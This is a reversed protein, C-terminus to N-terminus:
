APITCVGVNEYGPPAADNDYFSVCEQEPAGACVVDPAGLDCYETCCGDTKCGPVSQGAVCLLGQDCVNVYACPDGYSGQDSSADVDCVFQKDGGPLCIQGVPCSPTLPDCSTVCLLLAGGNSIDCILGEPCKPDGPSGMCMQVCYGQNNADTNWCILGVDCTDVGSAVSGEVTCDDGAQDPSGGIPVCRKADHIGDNDKDYPMCKSGEPCDQLWLDCQSGDGGGSTPSEGTTGAGGEETAGVSTPASTEGTGNSAEAEAEAEGADAPAEDGREFQVCGALALALAALTAGRPRSLRAIM